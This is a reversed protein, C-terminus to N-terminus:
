KDISSINYVNYDSGVASLDLVDDMVTSAKNDPGLDILIVKGNSMIIKLNHNGSCEISIVYSLNLIFSKEQPNGNIGVLTYTFKIYPSNINSIM